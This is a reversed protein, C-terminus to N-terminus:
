WSGAEPKRSGGTRSRAHVADRLLEGPRAHSLSCGGGPRSGVLHQQLHKGVDIGLRDAIPRESATRGGDSRHPGPDHHHGAESPGLQHSSHALAQSGDTRWQVAATSHRQKWVSRRHRSPHSTRTAPAGGPEVGEGSNGSQRRSARAHQLDRWWSRLNPAPRGRTRRVPAVRPLDTRRARAGTSTGGAPRSGAPRHRLPNAEPRTALM